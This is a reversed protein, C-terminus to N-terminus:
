DTRQMHSICTKFPGPKLGQPAEVRVGAGVDVAGEGGFGAFLGAADGEDGVEGLVGDAAEVLLHEVAVDFIQGGDGSSWRCL